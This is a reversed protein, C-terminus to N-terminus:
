PAYYAQLLGDIAKSESKLRQPHQSYPRRDHYGHSSSDLPRHVQMDVHPHESHRQAGYEGQQPRGRRALDNYDTHPHQSISQAGYTGEHPRGWEQRGLEAEQKLYPNSLEMSGPPPYYGHKQDDVIAEPNRPARDYPRPSSWKADMVPPPPPYPPNRQQLAYASGDPYDKLDSQNSSGDIPNESATKKYRTRYYALGVGMLVMALVGAISGVIIVIRSSNDNATTPSPTNSKSSDPSTSSSISSSGAAASTSTSASLTATPKPLAVFSNIWTNTKLNYILATNDAMVDLTPSSSKGGWIVFQDNTVACSAGLRGNPLNADPGKTWTWTAIDLVYIDSLASATLRSYGGFLVMKSGGYVPILCAAARQSPIAGRGSPASWGRTPSYVHLESGIETIFLMGQIASSWAASYNESVNKTSYQPVNDFVSTNLNVRLMSVEGTTTVYGNPSYIIGTDPDVVAGDLLYKNIYPSTLISTWTANQFNYLYADNNLLAFWSQKDASLTSTHYVATPGNPLKKFIPSTANWSVSLDMMFMQPTTIDSDVSPTGAMVYMAQGEIFVNNSQFVVAPQFSQTHVAPAFSICLFLTTIHTLLLAVQRSTLVRRSM